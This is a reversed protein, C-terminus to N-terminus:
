GGSDEAPSISVDGAVVSSVEGGEGRVLLSGDDAIGMAVAFRNRDHERIEIRKGIMSTHQMWQAIIPANGEEEWVNYLLDIERCLRAIVDGVAFTAGTLLALSTPPLRYEGEFHTQNVNIGIGVVAWSRSGLSGSEVLIGCIKKGGAMVDNPWKVESSIDALGNLTRVVACGALLPLGGWDELSRSPHLILSALINSGPAANWSRSLRGRGATQYDATVLTGHRGDEKAIQKAYTNTSDISAFHIHAIGLM